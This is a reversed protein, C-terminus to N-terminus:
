GKENQKNLYMEGILQALKQAVIKKSERSFFIKRGDRTFVLLENEESDFGVDSRSVDNAAILDLNKEILKQRAYNELDHTQAAFGVLFKRGKRQGLSKLIDKTKVFDISTSNEKPLKQQYTVKPRFDAVAAAMVVIHVQEFLGEVKNAMEETTEVPIYTIGFPPKISVPGSVLYVEAGLDRFAQALAFGMKGSSKNTIFRVPDIYERTPGATVLVKVGTLLKDSLIKEVEAIIQQVEPLRGPGEHGCALNGSDPELLFFGHGKLRNLNDQVISNQYMRTNMAPCLLVPCNKAAVITTLLDDAIGAAIKGIINATAPAIIILDAEDTLKIHLIPEEETFTEKLVKNGTVTALSLPTVFNEAGATLVPYVEYGKKTLGRALEVTKYAAIGGTIGLIIKGSAM